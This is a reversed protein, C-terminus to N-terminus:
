YSSILKELQEAILPPQWGAPKLIKGDSRLPGGLKAMNSEHVLDFFDALPIRWLWLWSEIINLVHRLAQVSVPLPKNAIAGLAQTVGKRLRKEALGIVLLRPTGSVPRPDDLRSPLSVGFAVGTGYVVYLLDCIEKILNALDREALSECVEEVEEAIVTIRLQRDRYAPTEGVTAGLARHFDAVKRQMDPQTTDPTIPM